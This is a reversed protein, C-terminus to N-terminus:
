LFRVKAELDLIRTNKVTSINNANNESEMLQKQLNSINSEAEQLLEEQKKHTEKLHELEKEM